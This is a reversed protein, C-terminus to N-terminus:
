GDAPRSARNATRRLARKAWAIWLVVALLIFVGQWIDVHFVHFAAPWYVGVLFLTVIRVLNLVALCLVGMVLGPLKLRLAIPSALVAAVFLATPEVADCGRAVEIMFRSSSISSKNASTEQGLARLVASSISANWELYVPFIRHQFLATASILYSIGVFLAFLLVFRLIPRRGGIPPSSLARNGPTRGPGSTSNM